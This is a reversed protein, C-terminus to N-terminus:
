KKAAKKAAKAKAKAMKTKANEKYKAILKDYRAMLKDFRGVCKEPNRASKCRSKGSNLTQKGKQLAAIWCLDKCAAQEASFFGTKIGSSKHCKTGNCTDYTAMLQNGVASLFNWFEWAENVVSKHVQEILSKKKSLDTDEKVVEDTEDYLIMYAAEVLNDRLIKYSDEIIQGEWRNM